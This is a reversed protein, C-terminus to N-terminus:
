SCDTGRGKGWRSMSDEEFPSLRYDLDRFRFVLYLGCRERSRRNKRKDMRRSACYVARFPNVNASAVNIPNKFGTM